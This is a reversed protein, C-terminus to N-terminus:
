GLQNAPNTPSSNSTNLAAAPAPVVHAVNAVMLGDPCNPAGDKATFPTAMLLTGFITQDALIGTSVAAAFTRDALQAGDDAM